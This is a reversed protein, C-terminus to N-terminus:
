AKIACSIVHSQWHLNHLVNKMPTLNMDYCTETLKLYQMSEFSKSNKVNKKNQYNKIQNIKKSQNVKILMGYFHIIKYTIKIYM